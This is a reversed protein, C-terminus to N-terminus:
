SSFYWKNVNKFVRFNKNRKLHDCVYCAHEQGFNSATPVFYKRWTFFREYMEQNQDLHLLYDALEKSTKFDNIHIFSDAPLYEEYNERPPGLVVPVTGAMMPNFVKESIYDQHISNEFSLYFKCSSMIKSFDNNDIHRGFHNGYGEVKIHQSFENFYGSRWLKEEWHSIIWCVLKDKPPIQFPQDEESIEVLRGYPIWIDSDRRYSSTLNFMDEAEPLQPTNTPSEMSLWVWKQLAPRSLTKLYPLDGRIDRIHFMVGHAKDLLNRDLTLRCGKIGYQSECAELDFQFGFPWHWLLVLTESPDAPHEEVPQLFRTALEQGTVLTENVTCNKMMQKHIEVELENLCAKSCVANQFDGADSCRLWSKVPSYYMYFTAGLCMVLVIPLFVRHSPRISTVPTM